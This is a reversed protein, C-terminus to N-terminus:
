FTNGCHSFSLVHQDGASFATKYLSMVFRESRPCFISKQVFKHAKSFLALFQHAWHSFSLLTTMEPQFRQITCLGVSQQFYSFLTGVYKASFALLPTGLTFIVFCESRPSFVSNQVFEHVKSLIVSLHDACHSFSLVHQDRALFATKSKPCVGASQQFSNFLPAGLAFIVAGASRPSSVNNQVFEHVQQFFRLRTAGLAFIVTCGSRPSFVSNKVIEHM